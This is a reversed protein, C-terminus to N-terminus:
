LDIGQTIEHRGALDAATLAKEMINGIADPQMDPYLEILGDRFAEMTDVSDLLDRVPSLLSDMAAASEKDARAAYRDAADDDTEAFAGGNEPTATDDVPDPAATVTFDDPELNYTRQYYVPTFRVGQAKLQTDREARDSQVDDEEYWAFEPPIANPVNLVSIWGFLQTFASKVMRKDKDVIDARVELHGQTAAYSGGKDLETSLTQGLVAKSVERNCASILNEYIDASASKSSFELATISEDDNIVAVADQVMQSLSSLLRGRDGDNTSRPVKGIMWPMGFKETFVAWFQFGGKKFAVPWFCRSLVKEGYPNLYTAHHRPLIFKGAPLIEGDTQNEMSLFRLDNEEGFVFWEPPKGEVKKPLWYKGDAGWTVEIPSMGFFPADLMEVIVQYADIGDMFAECLEAAAKDAKSDGGPRVEWECSLVGSKRSDYCSWVHADALLERYVSVDQGLKELVPDPDPLYGFMGWWDMSRSRIAIESSMVDRGKDIEIYETPSTWLKM